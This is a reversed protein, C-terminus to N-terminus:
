ALVDVLGNAKALRTYAKRLRDVGPSGSQLTQTSAEPAPRHQQYPAGGDRRVDFQGVSVGMEQFRVRLPEQQQELLRKAADDQVIMRVNVHGDEVALHLQVRGLEPPHLDLQVEVRGLQRLQDLHLSVHSQVQDALTPGPAPVAKATGNAIPVHLPAPAPGAVQGTTLGGSSTGSERDPKAVDGALPATPQLPGAPVAPQAEREGPLAVKTLVQSGPPVAPADIAPASEPPQQAVLKKSDVPTGVERPAPTVATPIVPGLGKLALAAGDKASFASAEGTLLSVAPGQAVDGSASTDTGASACPSAAPLVAASTLVAGPWVLAALTQDASTEKKKAPKAPGPAAAEPEVVTLDKAVKVVLAKKAHERALLDAFTGPDNNGAPSTNGASTGEGATTNDAVKKPATTPTSPNPPLAIPIM